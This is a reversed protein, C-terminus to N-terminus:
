SLKEVAAVIEAEDPFSGTELKSYVLEDNVTIEFCGGQSPQLEFATIKQKM